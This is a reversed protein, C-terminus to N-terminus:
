VLMGWISPAIPRHDAEQRERAVFDSRFWGPHHDSRRIARRTSRLHLSALQEITGGGLWSTYRTKKSQSIFLKVGSPYATSGARPWDICTRRSPGVAPCHGPPRGSTRHGARSVSM